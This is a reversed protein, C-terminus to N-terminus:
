PSVKVVSEPFNALEAVHIGFSQDCVGVSLDESLRPCSFDHFPRVQSSRTCCLSTAIAAVKTPMRSTRLSTCTRLTSSKSTSPRSSMSTLQSCASHMSKPHLTDLTSTLVQASRFLVIFHYMSQYLGRSVLDMTPRHEQYFTLKHTMWPSFM